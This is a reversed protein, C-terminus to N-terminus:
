KIAGKVPTVTPYVYARVPKLTVSPSASPIATLEVTPTVVFRTPIPAQATQTKFTLKSGAFYGAIFVVIAIVVAVWKTGKSTIKM